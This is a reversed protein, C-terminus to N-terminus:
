STPESTLNQVFVRFFLVERGKFSWFDIWFGWKEGNLVLLPTWYTLKRNLFASVFSFKLWSSFCRLRWIIKLDIQERDTSAHMSPQKRGREVFKMCFLDIDKWEQVVYNFWKAASAWQQMLMILRCCDRKIRGHIGFLVTAREFSALLWNWNNLSLFFFFPLFECITLTFLVLFHARNFLVFVDLSPSVFVFFM